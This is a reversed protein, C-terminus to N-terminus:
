QGMAGVGKSTMVTHLAGIEMKAHLKQWFGDQTYMGHVMGPKVFFELNTIGNLIAKGATLTFMFFIMESILNEM